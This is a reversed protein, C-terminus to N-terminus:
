CVESDARIIIIIVLQCTSRRVVEFETALVRNKKLKSFDIYGSAIWYNHRWFYFIAQPFLNHINAKTDFNRTM